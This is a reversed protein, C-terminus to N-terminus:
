GLDPEHGHNRYIELLRDLGIGERQEVALIHDTEELEILPRSRGDQPHVQCKLGFTDPYGRLSNSFWGFWPDDGGQDAGYFGDVYIRFNAESLSSWIGYGFRADDGGQIPLHLVCRVFFQEGDLVCFDGSLFHGHTEVLSNPGEEGKGDWVGPVRYGLDFIGTHLEDCSKCTWGTENLSRWRPDDALSGTM